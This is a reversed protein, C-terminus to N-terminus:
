AITAKVGHGTKAFLRPVVNPTGMDSEGSATAVSLFIVVAVM